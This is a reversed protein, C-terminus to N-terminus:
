NRPKKASVKRLKRILVAHKVRQVQLASRHLAAILEDMESILMAEDEDIFRDLLKRVKALIDAEGSKRIRRKTFGAAEASDSEDPIPIFNM